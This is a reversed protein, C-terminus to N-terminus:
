LKFQQMENNLQQALGALNNASHVVEELTSASQQTTATTQEIGAASEQSISAIDDISAGIGETRALVTTLNSSITDISAIMGVVADSISNFTTGTESIQLTGKKVEQYGDQLTKTVNGTDSQIRNVITSIEAVSSQVQEALKRVEDAVVAFGKGHEGARAAEIAANLALLNTQNSIDDIVSVLKSIEDSQTNLDEVKKVSDLMIDNIMAMQNTSSSMLSKGSETLQEVNDSYTKLATGENTIEQINETFVRMTETLDSATSAQTETGAALEQMTHAVQEVGSKVENSSQALEESSAAVTNSVNYISHITAQLKTNMDNAAVVLAGIEDNREITMLEQSLDGHALEEMRKAVLSVPTSIRRATVLAIVVGFITVMISVIVGIIKNDSSSSVMDNGAQEIAAAREAAMAEYGTRVKTVLSTADTLNSRAQEVNGAQYVAFVNNAVIDSWERATAVLEDREESQIYGEIIANNDEALQRYTNFIEIYSEEGTLVYSLAASLRVSSSTALNQSANLIVIDEEVLDKAKNEVTTNSIFSYVTFAAFFALLIIFMSLIRMKLTRFNFLKDMYYAGWGM